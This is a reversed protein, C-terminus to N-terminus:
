GQLADNDQPGHGALLRALALWDEAPRSDGSVNWTRLTGDRCLAALRRGDPSFCVDEPQYSHRLPGSLQLGTAADWLRVARDRGGTAIRRGDPSFVGCRLFGTHKLAPLLQRGTEA